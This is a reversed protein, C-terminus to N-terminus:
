EAIAPSLPQPRCHAHRHYLRTIEVTVRRTAFGFDGPRTAPATSRGSSKAKGPTKSLFSGAIRARSGATFHKAIISALTGFLFFDYWEFVTGMSSAAIVLVRSQATDRMIAGSSM